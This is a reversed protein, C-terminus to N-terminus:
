SVTNIYTNLTLPSLFLNNLRVCVYGVRVRMRNKVDDEQDDWSDSALSRATQFTDELERAMDRLPQRLGTCPGCWANASFDILWVLSDDNSDLVKSRFDAESLDEVRDNIISDM